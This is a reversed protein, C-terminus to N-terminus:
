NNKLIESYFVLRITKTNIVNKSFNVMKEICNKNYIIDLGCSKIILNSNLKSQKSLPKHEYILSFVSSKEFKDSDTLKPHILLPFSSNINLSDELYFSGLSMDFVFSDYRPLAEIVVQTNELKFKAIKEMQAGHLCIETNELKFELVALLSDRKFLSDNEITDNILGLVEDDIKNHESTNIQPDIKASKTNTFYYDKLNTLRWSLYGYVNLYNFSTTSASQQESKLKLDYNSSNIFNEFIARRLILLRNFDWETEIREKESILETEKPSMLYDMEVIKKYLNVDKSWKILDNRKPKKIQLLVCKVLYFWWAKAKFKAPRQIDICVTKNKYINSFKLIESLYKVQIENIDIHFDNLITRIRIRPKKRKRIPRSSLDRILHTQFSTPRILYDFLHSNSELIKNFDSFNSEQNEFYIKSDTYISFNKLEFLKSSLNENNELDNLVSPDTDNKITITEIMAGVSFQKFHDEYRIHLGNISVNINNLLSYAMPALFKLFMSQRDSKNQDDDIGLLEVEKFWKNELNILKDLKDQQSKDDSM